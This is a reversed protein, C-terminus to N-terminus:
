APSQPGGPPPPPPPQQSPPTQQPQPAEPAPAAPPAPAGPAVAGGVGGAAVAAGGAAAGGGEVRRLEFYIVAAALAILPATLANGFSRFITGVVDDGLATGIAGIIAGIVIYILAMVLIAGLTQWFSQKVLAYSRGFAGTVGTREIVVCPAVVAWITLLFIGPIILLLFGFAIGIAALIGAGILPLVVPAVSEFLQGVSADLRGDQVDEVLRVVMGTYFFNAVISILAGVLLGVIGGVLTLLVIIVGAAINVALASLFLVVFQDGYIGFVRSIVNGVDLNQNM